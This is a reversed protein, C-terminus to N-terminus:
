CKRDARVQIFLSACIIPIDSSAAMHAPWIGACVVAPVEAAVALEDAGAGAFGHSKL